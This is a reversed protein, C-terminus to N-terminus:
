SSVNCNRSSAPSRCAFVAHIASASFPPPTIPNSSATQETMMRSRQTCRIGFEMRRLIKPNSQFIKWTPNAICVSSRKKRCSSHFTAACISM